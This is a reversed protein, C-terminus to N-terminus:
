APPWPRGDRKGRIEQGPPPSKTRPALKASDARDNQSKFAEVDLSFHVLRGIAGSMKLSKTRTFRVAVLLLVLALTVAGVALLLATTM